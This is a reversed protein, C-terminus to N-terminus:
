CGLCDLSFVQQTGATGVFQGKVSSGGPLSDATGTVTVPQGDLSTGTCSVQIQEGQPTTQCSLPGSVQVGAANLEAQGQNSAATRVLVETMQEVKEQGDSGCSTLLLAATVCLATSIIRM